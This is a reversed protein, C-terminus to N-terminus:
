FSKTRLSEKAMHSRFKELDAQATLVIKELAAEKCHECNSCSGVKTVTTNHAGSMGVESPCKPKHKLGEALIQNGSPGLAGLPVDQMTTHGTSLSSGDISYTSSSSSAYNPKQVWHRKNAAEKGKGKSGDSSTKNGKFPPIAFPDVHKKRQEDALVQLVLMRLVNVVAIYNPDQKSSFKCITRHNADMPRVLEGPAGLVAHHKQVIM